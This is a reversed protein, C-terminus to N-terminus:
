ITVNLFLFFGSKSFLASSAVHQYLKKKKFFSKEVFTILKIDLFLSSPAVDSFFYQYKTNKDKYRSHHKM